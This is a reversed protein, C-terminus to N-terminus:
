KKRRQPFFLFSLLFSSGGAGAGFSFTPVMRRTLGHPVVTTMYPSLIL